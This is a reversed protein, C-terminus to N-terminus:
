INGLKLFPKFKEVLVNLEAAVAMGQSGLEDGFKVRHEQLTAREMQTKLQRMEFVKRGFQDLYAVMEKDFLFVADVVGIHFAGLAEQSIEGTSWLATNAFQRAADFVRYRRDYLDLNLKAAAIRSQRYAIYVGAVSIVAVGLAQLWQMWWPLAYAVTAVTTDPM